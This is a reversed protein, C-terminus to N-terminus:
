DRQMMCCFTQMVTGAGSPSYSTYSYSSGRDTSGHVIFPSGIVRYGKNMMDDVEIAFDGPSTNMIMKTKSKQKRLRISERREDLYKEIDDNM